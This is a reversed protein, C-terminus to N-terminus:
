GPGSSEQWTKGAMQWGQHAIERVTKAKFMFMYAGGDMFWQHRQAEKPGEAPCKAPKSAQLTRGLLWAARSSLRDEPTRDTRQPMMQPVTEPGTFSFDFVVM